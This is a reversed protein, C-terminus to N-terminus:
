NTRIGDQERLRWWLSYATSMSHILGDDMDHVISKGWSLLYSFEHGEIYITLATKRGIGWQIVIAGEEDTSIDPFEWPDGTRATFQFLENLFRKAAAITQGSIDTVGPSSKAWVAVRDVQEDLTVM